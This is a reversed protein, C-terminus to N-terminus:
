PTSRAKIMESLLDPKGEIRVLHPYRPGGHYDITCTKYYDDSLVLLQIPDSSEETARLAADFVERTFRRGNVAVVQMGPIIGARFAPSNWISQQVRGDGRLILGLSYAADVPPGAGPDAGASAARATPSEQDTYVVKWGSAEIGGVPAEPSTSTLREYFFKSWDFAAVQTLTGVLEDLTYPRVEPGRNPGGYFIRCFDDISKRNHTVRRIITDVELWLLDGEDYYDSDRKWDTWGGGGGRLLPAFTTDQLPRWTRGPRGPGLAAAISALHDRYEEPTWLGSRATLVPGLYDTLGEYVWLLDTKMPQEYDPTTLDAPRRFKGNWSHVFEHPLLSAMRVRGTTLGNEPVRSDNSEHHELGFHAVHDSLTLLFHYDRYHRAGFLKGSEAVLNTYHQRLEPSMRIAARSDGALDIEHPIPEGPPTVDVAQFYEGSLVPSDVLRELSVPKFEIRNGSAHEVALATGYQWGEPLQLTPKYLLEDARWGAPYLVEQNWVIVALKGTASGGATFPGGGPGAPELYDFSIELVNAGEPVDVHFTYVDLLDRRWAITKGGAKMVLGTLNAIPGDPGHEGPIWKPYYLTLKGPQVPMEMHVRIVKRPVDTADVNLVIAPGAAPLSAASVILLLLAPRVASHFGRISM